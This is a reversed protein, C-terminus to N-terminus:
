KLPDIPKPRNGDQLLAWDQTLEDQHLEAWAEVLRLQKRPLDGAILEVPDIAPRYRSLCGGTWAKSVALGSPWNSSTFGNPM